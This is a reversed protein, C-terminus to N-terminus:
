AASVRSQKGTSTSKKTKTKRGLVLRRISREKHAPLKGGCPRIVVLGEEISSSLLSDRLLNTSSPVVMTSRGGKQKNSEGGVECRLLVDSASHRRVLKRPSGSQLPTPVVSFLASGIAAQGGNASARQAVALDRLRREKASQATARQQELRSQQRREQCLSSESAVRLLPRRSISARCRNVFTSKEQNSGALIRKLEDVEKLKEGLERIEECKEQVHKQLGEKVNKFNMKEILLKEQDARAQKAEDKLELLKGELIKYEDASDVANDRLRELREDLQGHEKAMKRIKRELAEIQMNAEELLKATEATEQHSADLKGQEVIADAENDLIRKELKLV